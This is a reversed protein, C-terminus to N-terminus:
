NKSNTTGFLEESAFCINFQAFCNRNITIFRKLVYGISKLGGLTLDRLLFIKKCFADFGVNEHM